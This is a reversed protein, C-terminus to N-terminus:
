KEPRLYVIFPYHDSFPVSGDIRAAFPKWHSSCFVNDIRVYIGDKAFSRGIGNGTARFTDTLRRCIEHHAYSVPTDNFDGALIVKRGQNRDLFQAITDAQAARMAAAAKLKGIIARKGSISDAREPNRVMEHYANRETASLSNTQLHVNVVIVTDRRNPVLYFAVAGNTASHCIVEQRAILYKSAVGLLNCGVAEWKYDYGYRNMTRLVTNQDDKGRFLPEQLAIIDCEQSCAYRAAAFEDPRAEDQQWRGFSMINYSMVKICGKPPPSSLNVPFYDRLTGWCCALGVLPTLATEKQWFLVCVALLAVNVAVMVPFLLGAVGAIELWRSPNVYVSAACLWLLLVAIRCILTLLRKM